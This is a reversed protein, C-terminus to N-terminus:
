GKYELSHKLAHKFGKVKLYKQFEVINCKSVEISNCFGLLAECFELNMRFSECNLTGKFLRIEVTKANKLNVAVYRQYDSAKKM